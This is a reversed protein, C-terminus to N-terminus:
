KVVAIDNYSIGGRSGIKHPWVETIKVKICGESEECNTVDHAGLLIIDNVWVRDFRSFVHNM